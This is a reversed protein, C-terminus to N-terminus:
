YEESKYKLKSTTCEEPDVDDRIGKFSPQYLCGGPYAYLYKIDAVSGIPPNSSCSCFGVFIRSQPNHPDIVEMGISAKGERGAVVIVSSEAYFKFKFQDNGL